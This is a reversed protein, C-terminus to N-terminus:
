PLAVKTHFQADTLTQRFLFFRHLLGIFRLSFSIFLSFLLLFFLYFHICKKIQNTMIIPTLTHVSISHPWHARRHTHRLTKTMDTCTYLKQRWKDKQRTDTKLPIHAYHFPVGVESSRVLLWVCVCTKKQIDLDTLLLSKSCLALFM